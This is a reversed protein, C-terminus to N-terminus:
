IFIFFCPQVIFGVKEWLGNVPHWCLALCPPLNWETFFFSVDAKQEFYSFSFNKNLKWFMALEQVELSITFFFIKTRCDIKPFESRPWTAWCPWRGERQQVRQGWPYPPLGETYEEMSIRYWSRTWDIPYIVASFSHLEERLSTLVYFVNLIFSFFQNESPLIGFWPKTLELARDEIWFKEM